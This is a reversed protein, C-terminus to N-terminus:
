SFWGIVGGVGNSIDIDSPVSGTPISRTITRKSTRISIRSRTTFDWGEGASSGGGRRSSDTIVGYEHSSLAPGGGIHTM